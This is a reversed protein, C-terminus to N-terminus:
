DALQIEFIEKPYTSTTTTDAFQIEFVQLRFESFKQKSIHFHSYCRCVSNRFDFNSEPFTPISREVTLRYASNRFKRKPCRSTTTAGVFQIEFISIAKYLHPFPGTL